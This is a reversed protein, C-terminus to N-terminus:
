KKTDPDLINSFASGYNEAIDRTVAKTKFGHNVISFSVYFATYKNWWNIIQILYIYHQSCVPHALM